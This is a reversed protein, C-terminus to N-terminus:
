QAQEWAEVAARIVAKVDPDPVAEIGEYHNEGVNVIVGRVPDESLHIERQRLPSDVLMDQLVDEIQLVISRSSVPPSKAEESLKEVPTKAAPKGAAPASRRTSQPSEEQGLVRRLDAELEEGGTAWISAAGVSVDEAEGSSGAQASGDALQAPTQAVPALGMGLFTRLDRAAAELQARQSDSLPSANVLSKGDIEVVLGDKSKERWLRAIPIYRGKRGGPPAQNDDIVPETGGDQLMNLLNSALFGLVVSIVGVLILTVPTVDM